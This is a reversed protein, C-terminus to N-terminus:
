SMWVRPPHEIAFLPPPAFGPGAAQHRDAAPIQLALGNSAPTLASNHDHDAADHSHGHQSWLLDAAEGHAHGHEAAQEAISQQILAQGPDHRLPAKLSWAAVALCLAINLAVLWRGIGARM